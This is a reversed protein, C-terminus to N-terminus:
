AEDPPQPLARLSIKSRIICECHMKNIDTLAVAGQKGTVASNHENVATFVLLGFPYHSVESFATNLPYVIKHSRMRVGVMHATHSFNDIRKIYTLDDDRGELVLIDRCSHEILLEEIGARILVTLERFGTYAVNHLETIGASLNNSGQFSAILIEVVAGDGQHYSVARFTEQQGAIRFIGRLAFHERASLKVM